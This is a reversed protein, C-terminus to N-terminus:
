QTRLYNQNVKYNKGDYNWYLEKPCTNIGGRNNIKAEGEDNYM